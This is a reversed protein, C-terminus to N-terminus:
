LLNEGYIVSMIYTNTINKNIRKIEVVCIQM